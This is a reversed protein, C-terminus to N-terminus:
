SIHVGALKERLQLFRHGAGFPEVGEQLRNEGLPIAECRVEVLGASFISPGRLRGPLGTLADFATDNRGELDRLFQPKTAVKTLPLVQESNSVSRGRLDLFGLSGIGCRDFTKTM